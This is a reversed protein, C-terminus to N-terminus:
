HNIWHLWVAIPGVVRMSVAGLQLCTAAAVAASATAEASSVSKSLSLILLTYSEIVWSSSVQILYQIITLIVWIRHLIAWSKRSQVVVVMRGNGFVSSAVVKRLLLLIIAALAARRKSDHVLSMSALQALVLEAGLTGVFLVHALFADHDLLLEAHLAM